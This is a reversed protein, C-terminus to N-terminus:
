CCGPMSVLSTWRPPEWAVYGPVPTFLLEEVTSGSQGPPGGAGWSLLVGAPTETRGARERGLLGKGLGQFQRLPFDLQSHFNLADRGLLFFGRRTGTETEGITSRGFTQPAVLNQNNSSAPSELNLFHLLLFSGSVQSRLQRPAPHTGEICVGQAFPKTGKHNRGSM